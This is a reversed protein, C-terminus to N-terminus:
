NSWFKIASENVELPILRQLSRRITIAKGNTITKIMAGRVIGDRGYILENVRGKKWKIRPKRDDDKIIM